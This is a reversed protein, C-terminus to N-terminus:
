LRDADRWRIDGKRTAECIKRKGGLVVTVTLLPEENTTPRTKSLVIPSSVVAVGDRTKSIVLRFESASITLDPAEKIYGEDFLVGLSAPHRADNFMYYERCAEFVRKVIAECHKKQAMERSPPRQIVNFVFLAIMWLLFLAVVAAKKVSKM